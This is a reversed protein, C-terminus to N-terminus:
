TRSDFSVRNRNRSRILRNRKATNARIPTAKRAAGREANHEEQQADWRPSFAMLAGIGQQSPLQPGDSVAARVRSGAIVEGLVLSSRGRDAATRWGWAISSGTTVLKRAAGVGAAGVSDGGTM